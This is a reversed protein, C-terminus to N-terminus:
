VLCTLFLILLFYISFSFSFEGAPHRVTAWFAKLVAEADFCGVLSGSGLKTRFSRRKEVPLSLLFLLLVDTPIPRPCPREQYMPVYKCRWLKREFNGTEKAVRNGERIMPLFQLTDMFFLDTIFFMLELFYYIFLQSAGIAFNTDSDPYGPDRLTQDVDAAVFYTYFPFSPGKILRARYIGFQSRPIALVVIADFDYLDLEVLIRREQEQLINHAVAMFCVDGCKFVYDDGLNFARNGHETSPLSHFLWGSPAPCIDWCHAPLPPPDLRDYDM